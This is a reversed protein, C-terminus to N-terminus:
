NPTVLVGISDMLQGPPRSASVVIKLMHETIVGYVVHGDIIGPATSLQVGDLWVTRLPDPSLLYASVTVTGTNSSSSLDIRLGVRTAVVFSDQQSQIQIGNADRRTANSLVGLSVAGQDLGASRVSAGNAVTLFTISPSRPDSRERLTTAPARVSAPKLRQAQAFGIGVALLFWLLVTPKM